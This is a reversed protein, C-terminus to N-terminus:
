IHILSLSLLSMATLNSHLSQTLENLDLSQQNAVLQLNSPLVQSLAAQEVPTLGGVALYSFRSRGLVTMAAGIDMFVRQGQQAQTQLMAAPLRIGSALELQEGAQLGLSDALSKPYWAQFPPQMLEAWNGTVNFAGASDVPLALLDTAVLNLPQRDRTTLLDELVPYLQRFGARRLSIYQEPEIGEDGTARIWHTAQAGLLQSAQQYSSRAHTNIVQVAVWLAVGTVLGTLLFLTQLPHHRYHSLLTHLTWGLRKRYM